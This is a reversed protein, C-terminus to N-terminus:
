KRILESVSIQKYWKFLLFFTSDCEQLPPPLSYLRDYIWEVKRTNKVKLSSWRKLIFKECKM